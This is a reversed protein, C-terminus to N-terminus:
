TPEKEMEDTRPNHCLRPERERTDRTVQELWLAGCALCMGHSLEYRKPQPTSIPEGFRNILRLCWACQRYM